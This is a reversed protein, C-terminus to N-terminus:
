IEGRLRWFVSLALSCVLANALALYYTARSDGKTVRTAFGAALGVLTGLLGTGWIAPQALAGSFKSDDLLEPNEPLIVLFFLGLGSFTTLGSLTLAWELLSPRHTAPPAEM